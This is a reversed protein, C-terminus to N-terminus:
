EVSDSSTTEVDVDVVDEAAVREERREEEARRRRADAAGMGEFGHRAEERGGM